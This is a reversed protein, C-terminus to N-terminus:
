TQALKKHWEQLIDFTEREILNGFNIQIANSFSISVDDYSGCLKSGVIIEGRELSYGRRFEDRLHMKLLHFGHDDPTKKFSYSQSHWRGGNKFQEMLPIFIDLESDLIESPNIPISYGDILYRRKQRSYSFDLHSYPMVGQNRCSELYTYPDSNTIGGLILHFKGSAPNRPLSELSDLVLKKNGSFEKEM